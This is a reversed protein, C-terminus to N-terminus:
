IRKIRKITVSVNSASRDENKKFLHSICERPFYLWVSTKDADTEKCVIQCEKVLKAHKGEKNLM